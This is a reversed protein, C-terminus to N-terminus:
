IFVIPHEIEEDFGNIWGLFYIFLDVEIRSSSLFGLFNDRIEDDGEEIELHESLEWAEGCM